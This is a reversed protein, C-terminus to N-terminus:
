ARAPSAPIVAEARRIVSELGEIAESLTRLDERVHHPDKFLPSGGQGETPIIESM